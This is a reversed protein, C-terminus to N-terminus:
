AHFKPPISIAAAAERFKRPDGEQLPKQNRKRAYIEELVAYWERQSCGVPHTLEELTSAPELDTQLLQHQALWIRAVIAPTQEQQLCHEFHQSIRLRLEPATISDAALKQLATVAAYRVVWETDETVELLVRLVNQQAPEIQDPLMKYWHLTGLGRTAARRVSLAFDNHAADLLTDLARPDGLGALARIAWARAGYNYGDLLELLPVVAPEGLAILGNVAIVAVGPNNYGLAAILTPIAPELRADALHCVAKFLLAPSDAAEVARILSRTQDVAAM